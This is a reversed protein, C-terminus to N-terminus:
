EVVYFNDGNNSNGHAGWLLLRPGVAKPSPPTVYQDYINIGASNQSVYIAAHGEYRGSSNFTAIVTGPLINRNNKVPPGKRWISTVPLSPCVKKVYSVCQGCLDNGRTRDGTPVEMFPTVSSTPSCTWKGIPANPNNMYNTSRYVMFNRRGNKRLMRVPDPAVLSYLVSYKTGQYNEDRAM